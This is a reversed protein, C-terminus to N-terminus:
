YQTVPGQFGVEKEKEKLSPFYPSQMDFILTQLFNLTQSLRRPYEIGFVQFAAVLAAVATVCDDVKTLKEKDLYLSFECVDINFPNKVELVPTAVQV